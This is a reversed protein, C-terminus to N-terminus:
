GALRRARARVSAADDALAEGLSAQAFDRHRPDRAALYCIADLSWARLFPKDHQRLPVLWQILADADDAAVDMHRVSQCIHLRADWATVADIRALLTSVQDASLAMGAELASKILWTAGFSINGSDDDTLAILATMYGDRGSEAAEIEGLISVARGDFTGIRRRLDTVYADM